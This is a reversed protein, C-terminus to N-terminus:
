PAVPVDTIIASIPWRELQRKLGEDNVTFIRVDLGSRDMADVTRRDALEWPVQIGDSEARGVAAYLDEFSLARALEHGLGALSRPADPHVEPWTLLTHAEERRAEIARILEASASSLIM